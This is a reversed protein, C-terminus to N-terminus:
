HKIVAESLCENLEDETIPSDWVKTEYLSDAHAKIRERLKEKQEQLTGPPLMITIPLSGFTVVCSGTPFVKKDQTKGFGRSM